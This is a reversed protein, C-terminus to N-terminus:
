RNTDTSFKHLQSMETINHIEVKGQDGGLIAIDAQLPSLVSTPLSLICYEKPYYEQPYYEKPDRTSPLHTNYEKPYHTNYEKYYYTNHEKPYHANYEKPYHTNYEKPYRTSYEKRYRHSACKSVDIFKVSQIRGAM